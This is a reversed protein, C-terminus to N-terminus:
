ETDLEKEECIQYTSNQYYPMQKDEKYFIEVDRHAENIDVRYSYVWRHSINGIFYHHIVVYKTQMIM